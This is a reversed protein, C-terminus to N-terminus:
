AVLRQETAAPVVAESVNGTKKEDSSPGLWYRRTQVLAPVGPGGGLEAFLARVDAYRKQLFRMEALYPLIRERVFGGKQAQQLAHEAAEVQCMQLELRALLFWVGADDPNVALAHGAHLRVQEASFIQMDGLVLNQYILEWYLEAICKHLDAREKADGAHQLNAKKQLVRQMIQKEKNDLIGYALLRIDDTPDALLERLSAGIARAPTDQVAVLAKMRHDLPAKTNSLQARVQGGRFGTGEHNRHTTFRPMATTEFKKRDSQRPWWVGLIIGLTACILGIVPMFFNFCFLYTLLWIRPKKYQAPVILSIALSVLVCGMGHLALYGVMLALSSSHSFLILIASLELAIGSYTLKYLM